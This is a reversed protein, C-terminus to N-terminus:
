ELCTSYGLTISLIHILERAIEEGTVLHVLRQKVEWDEAYCLIVAHVEGFFHIVQESPFEKIRETGM